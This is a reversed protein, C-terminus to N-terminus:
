WSPKPKSFWRSRNVKALEAAVQTGAPVIAAFVTPASLYFTLPVRASQPRGPSIGMLNLFALLNREPASNLRDITLEGYRAFIRTLAEILQGSGGESRLGPLYFPVLTRVQAAIEEAGRRDIKPSAIM